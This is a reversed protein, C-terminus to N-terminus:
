STAAERGTNTLQAQSLARLLKREDDFAQRPWGGVPRGQPDFTVQHASSRGDEEQEVWYAVVRSPDLRGEAIALQAELIVSRAHTEVIIRPPSEGAALAVFHKVLARQADPHLQAAPEEFAYVGLGPEGPRARLGLAVLIPLVQAMGEGTDLLSVARKAEGKLVRLSAQYHNGIPNLILERKIAKKYWDSVEHSLRENSVLPELADAGDHKIHRLRSGSPKFLRPPKARLPGLWQIRGRLDRLVSRLKSLIPQDERELNPLLGTFSLRLRTTGASTVVEFEDYPRDELPIHQAVLSEGEREVELRSVFARNDQSEWKLTWKARSVEAHEWELELNFEPRQQDWPLDGFSADQAAAGRVDFPAAADESISDGLLPLLRLLSSKGANNQGFLLTLPRLELRASSKFAKYGTITIAALEGM